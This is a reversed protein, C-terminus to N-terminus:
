LLVWVGPIIVALYLVRFYHVLNWTRIARRLPWTSCSIRGYAEMASLRCGRAAQVSPQELGSRLLTFWSFFTGALVM